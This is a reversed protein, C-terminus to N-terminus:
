GVLDFLQDRYGDLILEVANVTEVLHARLRHGLEGRDLEDELAAGVLKPGALEHGLPEACIVAVRGVQALGGKMIGASDAVLRIMFIPREDSSTLRISM